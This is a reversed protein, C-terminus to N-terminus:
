EYFASIPQSFEPLLEDAIVADGSFERVGQATHAEVSKAEPYAIWVAGSGNALYARIKSKLHIYTDTPSVAEIAIEPAGSIIREGQRRLRAVAVVSVDPVLVSEETVQFAPEPYVRLNVVKGHAALYVARANNIEGRVIDHLQSPTAMAVMEGAILEEKIRNGNADYQQPLALFQQSTM